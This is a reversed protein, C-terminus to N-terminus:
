MRHLASEDDDAGVRAEGDSGLDGPVVAVLVALWAEYDDVLHVLFVRVEEAGDFGQALDESGLGDRDLHRDAGLCGEFADDVEEVHLGEDAAAIALALLDGDRIVQLGADVLVPGV